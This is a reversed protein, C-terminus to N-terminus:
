KQYYENDYDYDLDIEPQVQKSTIDDINQRTPINNNTGRCEDCSKKEYQYEFLDDFM